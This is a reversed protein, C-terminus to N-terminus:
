GSHVWPRHAKLNNPLAKIANLARQKDSFQGSLVKFVGNEDKIRVHHQGQLTAAFRKAQAETRAAFLQISFTPKANPQATRPSTPQSATKPHIVKLAAPARSFRTLNQVNVRGKLWSNLQIVDNENLSGADAKLAIIANLYAYQDISYDLKAKYLTTTAELIDVMTRTGVKYGAQTAELKKSASKIAHKDARIKSIGSTINLFNQRTDSVTNRHLAQLKAEASVYQYRAKKTNAFIAGGQFPDWSLNLAVDRNYLNTSPDSVSNGMSYNATVNASPLWASAKTFIGRKVAQTTFQQAQLGFNNKEAISVWQDINNPKPNLLPVQNAITSLTNYSRNTIVRLAELDNQITARATIEQARMTDYNSKADYLGTIAVLGVKYQQQQTLMDQYNSKKNAIVYRLNAEDQLVQLYAKITRQIVSQKADMYTASAAKTNISNVGIANMASFNILQQTATISNAHTNAHTWEGQGTKDRHEKFTATTTIKPLYAAVAIPLDEQAAQWDATAQQYTQDNDLAQQYADMLSASYLTPSLSCTLAILTSRLRYAM